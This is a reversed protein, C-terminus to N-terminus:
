VFLVSVLLIPNAAAQRHLKLGSSSAPTSTPPQTCFTHTQRLRSCLYVCLTVLPPHKLGGSSALTLTPPQMFFAHTSPTLSVILALTSATPHLHAFHVPLLSTVSIPVCVCCVCVFVCRGKLTDKPAELFFPTRKTIQALSTRRAQSHSHATMPTHAQTNTHCAILQADM